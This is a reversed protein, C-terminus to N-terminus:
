RKSKKFNDEAWLPQLNSYHFCQRQQESASLDFSACPRIHDIHIEGTMVREWSMGETFQAEIHAKLEEVSCGLLVLTSASKTNRRLAGYLRSRLNCTLKYNLDIRYRERRGAYVKSRNRRDYALKKEKNAHYYAIAKRDKEEKHALYREKDYEAKHDKDAHRHERVCDNCDSRLGDKASAKKYFKAKLKKCKSCIKM